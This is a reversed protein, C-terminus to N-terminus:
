ETHGQTLWLFIGLAILLISSGLLIGIPYNLNGAMQLQSYEIVMILAELVLAICVTSVFRTVTRRITLFINEGDNSSSYEKGLGAGLEFMALAIIFTHISHIIVSILRKDVSFAQDFFQYVALGSLLMSLAYFIISFTLALIFKFKDAM